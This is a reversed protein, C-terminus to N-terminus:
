QVSHAYLWDSCRTPWYGTVAGLPGLLGSCGTPRYGTVAGLTGLWGSCRTPRYGTVACLPSCGIVAGLPGLCATVSATTSGLEIYNSMEAVALCIGVVAVAQDAACCSM